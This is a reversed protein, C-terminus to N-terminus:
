RSILVPIQKGGHALCLSNQTERLKMMLDNDLIREEEGSLLENMYPFSEPDVQLWIHTDAPRLYFGKGDLNLSSL